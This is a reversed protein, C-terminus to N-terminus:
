ERRPSATGPSGPTARPAISCTAGRALEALVAEHAALDFVTEGERELPLEQAACPLHAASWLSNDPDVM